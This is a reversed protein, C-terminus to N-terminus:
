RMGASRDLLERLEALWAGESARANRERLAVVIDVGAMKAAHKRFVERVLRKLRNRDVARPALRKTM